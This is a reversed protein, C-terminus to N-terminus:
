QAVASGGAMDFARAEGRPPPMEGVDGLGDFVVKLKKVVEDERMQAIHAAQPAVAAVHAEKALLRDVLTDARSREYRLQGVLDEIQVKLARIESEKSGMILDLAESKAALIIDLTGRTILM